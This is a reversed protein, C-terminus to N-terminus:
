YMTDSQNLNFLVLLNEYNDYDDLNKCKGTYTYM